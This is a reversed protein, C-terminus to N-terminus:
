NDWKIEFEVWAYSVAKTTSTTITFGRYIFYDKIATVMQENLDECIKYYSYKGSKAANNIAKTFNKIYKKKQRNFAKKTIAKVKKATIM